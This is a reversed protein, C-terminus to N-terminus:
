SYWWLNFPLLKKNQFASVSKLCILTTYAHLNTQFDTFEIHLSLASMCYGSAQHLLCTLTYKVTIMFFTSLPGKRSHKFVFRFSLLLVDVVLLIIVESHTSDDTEETFIPGLDSSKTTKCQLSFPYLFYLTLHSKPQNTLKMFNQHYIQLDEESGATHSNVGPLSCFPFM